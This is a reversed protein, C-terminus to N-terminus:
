AAPRRPVLGVLLHGVETIGARMPFGSPVAGRAVQPADTARVFAGPPRTANPAAGATRFLGIAVHRHRLTAAATSLFRAEAASPDIGDPLDLTTAGFVAVGRSERPGGLSSGLRNLSAAWGPPLGIGEDAAEAAAEASALPAASGGVASAVEEARRVFTAAVTEPAGDFRMGALRPIWRREALAASAERLADPPEAVVVPRPPTAVSRASIGPDLRRALTTPWNDHMGLRDVLARVEERESRAIPWTPGGAVLSAGDGRSVVLTLVTAPTVASLAGGVAGGGVVRVVRALEAATAGRSRLEGLLEAWAATGIGEPPDALALLAGPSLLAILLDSAALGGALELAPGASSAGAEGFSHRLTVRESRFPVEPPLTEPGAVFGQTVREDLAAVTALACSTAASGVALFAIERFGALAVFRNGLRVTPGDRRLGGRVGRYADAGSVGARYAADFMGVFVALRDDPEPV